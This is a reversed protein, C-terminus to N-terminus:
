RLDKIARQVDQIPIQKARISDDEKMFRVKEKDDIESYARKRAESYSLGAQQYHETRADLENPLYMKELASSESTHYTACGTLLTTISLLLVLHKM